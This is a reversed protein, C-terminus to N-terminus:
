RPRRVVSILTVHEYITTFLDEEVRIVVQRLMSHVEIAKVAAVVCKLPDHGTKHGDHKPHDLHLDQGILFSRSVGENDKFRIAQIHDAPALEDPDEIIGGRKWPWRM